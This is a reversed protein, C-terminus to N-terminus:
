DTQRLVRNFTVKNNLGQWGVSPKIFASCDTDYLVVYVTM